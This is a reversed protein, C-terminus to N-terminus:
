RTAHIVVPAGGATAVITGDGDTLEFTTSSREALYPSPVGVALADGPADLTVLEGTAQDGPVASMMAAGRLVDATSGGTGDVAIVTGGGDLFSSLDASWDQGVAFSTAAPAARPLLLFVDARTRDRPPAGGLEVATWTRGAAAVGATLADTVGRTVEADAAEASFAVRVVPGGGLVAANGLLRAAAAHYARYDHGILVVHGATAGACVGAECLGSACVVGCSGCNDPDSEVQGCAADASDLVCTGDREVWGERCEGGTLSDFCGGLLCGALVLAARAARM